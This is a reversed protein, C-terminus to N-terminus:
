DKRLSSLKWYGWEKKNSEESGTGMQRCEKCLTTDLHVCYELHPRVLVLYLPFLVKPNKSSISRNICGLIANAKKTSVESQQSINLKHHIVIGLVSKMTPFLPATQPGLGRKPIPNLM